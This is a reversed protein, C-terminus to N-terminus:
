GSATRSPLKSKQGIFLLYPAFSRGSLRVGVKSLLKAAASVARALAAVAKGTFWTGLWGSNGWLRFIGHYGKYITTYGLDEFMKFTAPQMVDVNHNDLDPRDFLYHWFYQFGTFNPVVIVVYGGPRLYRDHLGLLDDLEGGRFHEILGFSCVIDFQRGIPTEFLDGKYLTATKGAVALSALYAGADDSYDIGFPQWQTGLMLAASLIGPSCGLELVELQGDPLSEVVLGMWQDRTRIRRLIHEDQVPSRGSWRSKNTLRM